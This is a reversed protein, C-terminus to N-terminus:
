HKSEAFLAHQVDRDSRQRAAVRGEVDDAGRDAHKREEDARGNAQAARVIRCRQM